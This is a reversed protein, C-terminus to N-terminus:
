NEITIPWSCPCDGFICTASKGTYKPNIWKISYRCGRCKYHRNACYQKIPIRAEDNISMVPDYM